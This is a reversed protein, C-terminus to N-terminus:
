DRRRRAILLGGIGLLALSSPEPTANVTVYDIEIFDGVSDPGGAVDVRLRAVGESDYPYDFGEGPSFDATVIFFGDTDAAATLNAGTINTVNNNPPAPRFLQIITGSVDFSTAVGNTSDTRRFRVEVTTIQEGAPIAIVVDGSNAVGFRAQSDNATPTYNLSDGDAVAVGGSTVEWGELDGPTNFQFDAIVAASASGASYFGLIAATCLAQQTRTIM